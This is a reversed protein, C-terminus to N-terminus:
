KTLMELRWAPLRSQWAYIDALPAEHQRAPVAANALGHQLLYIILLSIDGDHDAKQHRVQLGRQRWRSYPRRRSSRCYQAWPACVPWSQSGHLAEPQHSNTVSSSREVLKRLAACLQRAPGRRQMVMGRVDPLAVMHPLQVLQACRQSAVPLSPPGLLFCLSNRGWLHASGIRWSSAM